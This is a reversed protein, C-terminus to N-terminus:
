KKKLLEQLYHGTYSSSHQAVDEPTGTAVVQGGEEGGDPGLDIIWDACKVVDLNHEIIVMTNGKNVLRQLVELLRQIDAFHLGTTPEDLIYLTKGYSRKGLESSLKIRQAEGGSLTTASQGLRIYGLGVAQLTELTDHLSPINKFFEAAEDVTMHLVQAITKGKYHIELTDRNYRTGKCVECPIEVDALFHMEIKLVGDGKCNDCRGGDVNFSFRGPKYGRARAEATKSFLDRIQDFSKTYTAPNSRPTRGIPSQDIVIVREIAESGTIKEHKGMPHSSRHLQNFVGEYLINNVLTSKGSGSVGTICTLVGLPFHATINKLNHESAKHVSIARKPSADRRKSPVPIKKIGQLYQSTVAETDKLFEKIPKAAVIVGGHEGAGPGIEVAFDAARITDEDHEVVIITNGREKLTKLTEILRANDRQHLGITPEDLVYLVGTLASGIQSALRIRQAEGGSLTAASRALTLYNLGVKSLFELRNTIEM